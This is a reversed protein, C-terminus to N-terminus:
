TVEVAKITSQFSFHLVSIDEISNGVHDISTKRFYLTHIQWPQFNIVNVLNEKIKASFCLPREQM